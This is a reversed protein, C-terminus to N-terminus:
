IGWFTRWNNNFWDPLAQIVSPHYVSYPSVGYKRLAAAHAADYSLGKAMKTAEALEHMYFSADAGTIKLGKAMATRLRDMMMVNQEIHGFQILHDDVIHLGKQTVRVATTGFLGLGNGGGAFRPNFAGTASKPVMTRTLGNSVASLVQGGVHVVGGTLAGAGAAYVVGAITPDNANLNIVNAVSLTIWYDAAAGMAAVYMTSGLTAAGAPAAAVGTLVGAFYGISVAGVIGLGSTELLFRDGLLDRFTEAVASHVFNEPPEFTDLIDRGNNAPPPAPPDLPPTTVTPPPPPAPPPPLTLLPQPPPPMPAPPPAPSPYAQGPPVQRIPIGAEQYARYESRTDGFLCTWNSMIADVQAQKQAKWVPSMHFDQIGHFVGSGDYLAINEGVGLQGYDSPMASTGNAAAIAAGIGGAAVTATTSLQTVPQPTTTGTGVDTSTSTGSVSTTLTATGDPTLTSSAGFARQVANTQASTSSTNVVAGNASTGILGVTNSVNDTFLETGTQVDSGTNVTTGVLNSLSASHAATSTVLDHTTMIDSSSAVLSTTTTLGTTPDITVTGDHNSTTQTQTHDIQGNQNSVDSENHVTEVGTADYFYSEAGSQSNHMSSLDSFTMLSSDNFATSNGYSNISQGVYTINRHGGGIVSDDNHTSFTTSGSLTGDAAFSLIASSSTGGQGSTATTRLDDLTAGSAPNGVVSISRNSSISNNDSSNTSVQGTVVLTPDGSLASRSLHITDVETFADSTSNGTQITTLLGTILDAKIVNLLSHNANTGQVNFTADTTDIRYNASAQATNYEGGSSTSIHASGTSSATSSVSSNSSNGPGTFAITQSIALSKSNDQNSITKNSYIDDDNSTHNSGDANSTENHFQQSSDTESATLQNTSTESLTTTVVTGDALTQTDQFEHVDSTQTQESVTSMSTTTTAQIIGTPLISSTGADSTVVTATSSGSSTFTETSNLMEGNGVQGNTTTTSTITDSAEDQVRSTNSVTFVDGLDSKGPGLTEVGTSTSTNVMTGSDGSTETTVTITSTGYPNTLRDTEHSQDSTSFLVTSSSIDNVTRTGGTATGAALVESDNYFSTNRANTSFVDHYDVVTGDTLTEDSQQWGTNSQVQLETGSDVNNDNDTGTTTGDTALSLTGWGSNSYTDAGTDSWSSTEYLSTYGTTSDATVSLSTYVDTFSYSDRGSSTGDYTSSVIRTGDANLTFTGSSTSHWQDSGGSTQESHDSHLNSAPTIYSFQDAASIASTGNQGVVRVDVTAAIGAPAIATISTDSNIRFSQANVTGFLVATAGTFHLGTINVTTGGATSGGTVQLSSVVPITIGTTGGGSGSSTSGSTAAPKINTEDHIDTRSYSDNGFNLTSFQGTTVGGTTTGSSSNDTTNTQILAVSVHDTAPYGITGFELDSNTSNQLTDSAYHTTGNSSTSHFSQTTTNLTFRTFGTGDAAVLTDSVAYIMQLSLNTTSSNGAYGITSSFYYSLIETMSTTITEVAGNALTNTVVNTFQVTGGDTTTTTSSYAQASPNVTTTTVPNITPFWPTTAPATPGLSGSFIGSPVYTPVGASDPISYDPNIAGAAGSGAGGTNGSGSTSSGSSSGLAGAAVSVQSASTAASKGAGNTVSVTTTGTVGVPVQALITTPSQVVFVAQTTGFMVASVGSFNSGQISVLSGAGSTNPSFAIGTVAPVANPATVTFQNNGEAISNGQPSQLTIKVTGPSLAPAIATLSSDSRITFSTAAINGFMVATVSSFGTGFLTVATGGGTSGGAIDLGDIVPAGQLNPTSIGVGSGDSWTTQFTIQDAASVASTGASTAVQVDVAGAAVIPAVASISSDSIVTFSTAPVGGFLVSTAGTFHSGNITVSTGGATSATSTTLGTVVPAANTFTFQDASSTTSTGGSTTVRIDVTGTTGTPITATISSDSIITFSSAPTSGFVVSTTGLFHSGSITVSAGGGPWGSSTSLGSITPLPIPVSYTFQDGSVIASTGASNVVRVDVSGATAAPATVVITTDNSVTFSTAPVNGFLVSSAGTFHSGSITVSTGGATPGSTTSLGSVAPAPSTFTFQDLSTRASTGNSSTVQVDVTGAAEAPSVATITGNSNISYSAAPVSGFLVGTVSSLQSGSITITTGGSTPGSSTSLGSISPAPNTFTFQDAITTTSTGSTSQVTVDVTGTPEAPSVATISTSSIVTFSTAAITGFKVATIAAFNSGTITVTTGGATPGSTVSLSSVSPVVSQYTYKDAASMGSTGAMNSVKVDIAGATGAPVVATISNSSNVVYSTAPTSGFVVGTIGTFNSGMITISNGGSTSGSSASLGTVTPPLVPTTFTLLDNSSTSSTGYATTVQVDVQGSVHAPAIATISTSSNVTFSSAATGGFSVASAGSFNSGTITISAGGSTTATGPSVSSIAPAGYPSVYTFQDSTNTSSSGMSTVVTVDVTGPSHSPAIATIQTSSNVTYSSAMQTGFMVASVSTFGSGTITLSTGGTPMGQHSSLSTVTPASAGYYGGAVTVSVTATSFNGATDAAIYTFSETGTFGTSPTFLLSPHTINANAPQISVTGYPVAGVSSISLLGTGGTDNALVDITIPPSAGMNMSTSASDNVAVIPTLM